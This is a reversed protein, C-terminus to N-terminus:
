HYTRRTAFVDAVKRITSWDLEIIFTEIPAPLVTALWLAYAFCHANM